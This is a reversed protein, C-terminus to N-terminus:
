NVSHMSCRIHLTYHYHTIYCLVTVSFYFAAFQALLARLELRCKLVSVNSTLTKPKVTDISALQYRAISYNYFSSVTM